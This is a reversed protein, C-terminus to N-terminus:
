IYAFISHIENMTKSSIKDTHSILLLFDFCKSSQSVHQTVHQCGEAVIIFSSRSVNESQFVCEKEPM